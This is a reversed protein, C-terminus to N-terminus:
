LRILLSFGSAFSSTMGATESEYEIGYTQSPRLHYRYSSLEWGLDSRCSLTSTLHWTLGLGVRGAPTLKDTNICNDVTKLKLNGYIGAAADIDLAFKSNCFATFQTGLMGGISNQCGLYTDALSTNLQLPQSRLGVFGWLGWGHGIATGIRVGSELVPLRSIRGGSTYIHGLPWLLGTTIALHNRSENLTNPGKSKNGPWIMDSVFYGLEASLIGVGAGAMVDAPLHRNSIVRQAAVGTAFSYAGFAYWPSTDSLEHMVSTAGLFAWATHGSPFSRRDDGDPRPADVGRKLSEVVGALAVAGVAQSVALKQWSSAVSAGAAKMVWPFAMPVFQAATMVANNGHSELLNAAPHWPQRATFRGLAGEAVTVAGGVVMPMVPVSDASINQGSATAGTCMAVLALFFKYFREKMPM